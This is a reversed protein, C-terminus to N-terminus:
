VRGVPGIDDSPQSATPLDLVAYVTPNERLKGVVTLGTAQMALVCMQDRIVHSDFGGNLVIDTAPVEIIEIM